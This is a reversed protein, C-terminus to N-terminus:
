SHACPNYIYSQHPSDVSSKDQIGSGPMKDTKIIPDNSRGLREMETGDLM